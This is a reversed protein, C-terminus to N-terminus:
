RTQTRSYRKVPVQLLVRTRHGPISEVHLEGDLDRLREKIGFLGVGKGMDIFRDDIMRSCGKGRDEVTLTLTEEDGAIIVTAEKTGAHKVVNFLLERVAKFLVATTTDDIMQKHDNGQVKFRIDYRKAMSDCLEVIAEEFGIRYLCSSTLEFSLSRIKEATKHILEGIEDRIADARAPDKERDALALKLNCLALDQAVDDHLGEAIRQQEEDQAMTLRAALRRLRKQHKDRQKQEEMRTTIDRIIGGLVTRGELTFQSPSIEVPFVSGDKRRHWRLPIPEKVRGALARKIMEKSAQPECTIDWYTLSLFEDRTYGYQKEAAPNVDMFRHSQSDFVLIASAEAEFLNRYREESEKLVKEIRRRETVDRLVGTFGIIESTEDRQLTSREEFWIISGSPAQIRFEMPATECRELARDFAALVRKRDDALILDLFPRGEIANPDFGYRKAQPGVYGLRGGADIRFPIDMTNEVLGRFKAESEALSATRERVRQELEEEIQKRATIDTSIGCVAFIKGDANHLPYKCSLYVHDGDRQPVTEEFDLARGTRWVYNDNATYAQAFPALVKFEVDRRGVVKDPTSNLLDAHYRNSLIYRGTDDKAYIATDACDIVSQLLARSEILAEEARKQMTIDQTVGVRRSSADKEDLESEAKERVWKVKGDVFLRHEIDYPTGKLSAKWANDVDDRDDPHVRDIFTAYTIQTGIPIGFIRYTEDTWIFANTTIDLEWTGIRGIEQSKQLFYQQRLVADDAKTRLFSSEALSTIFGVLAKNYELIYDVKERTFVPVRDLAALYDDLDYGFEGAQRIFFERDPAEGAYFFQGLFMTALHRQSVIIPVGIDWLGNKCKYQCAQGGVLQQKIYNDSAQCRKLSEPNARHFDVCIDQWGVGVLISDDIADIIGIPMGAAQYHADAMKQVAALDILDGLRFDDM